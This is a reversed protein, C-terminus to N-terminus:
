CSGKAVFQQKTSNYNHLNGKSKVCSKSYSALWTNVHLLLSHKNQETRNQETRNQETRNQETRNQEAM